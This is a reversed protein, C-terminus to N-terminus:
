HKREEDFCGRCIGIQFALFNFGQERMAYRPVAQSKTAGVRACDADPAFSLNDGNNGSLKDPSILVALKSEGFGEQSAPELLEM